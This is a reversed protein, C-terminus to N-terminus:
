YPLSLHRNRPGEVDYLLLFEEDNLNAIDNFDLQM